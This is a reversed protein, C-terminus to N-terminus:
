SLNLVQEETAMIDVKAPDDRSYLKSGENVSDENISYFINANNTKTTIQIIGNELQLLEPPDCRPIQYAVKVIDSHLCGECFAATTIVYEKGLDVDVNIPEQYVNEKM